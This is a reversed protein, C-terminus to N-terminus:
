QQRKPQDAPNRQLAIRIKYGERKRIPMRVTVPYYGRARVVFGDAGAQPIQAKLSDSFFHKSGGEAITALKGDGSERAFDFFAFRVVEESLSDVAQGVVVGPRSNPTLREVKTRIIPPAPLDLDGAPIFNAPSGSVDSRLGIRYRGPPLSDGLIIRIPLEGHDSVLSKGPDLMGSLVGGVCVNQQFGSLVAPGDSARWKEFTWAPIQGAGSKYVNIDIGPYCQGIQINVARNSRNQAIASVTISSRDAGSIESYGYFRVGSLDPASSYQVNHCGALAFFIAAV